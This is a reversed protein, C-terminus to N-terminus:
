FGYRQKFREIKRSAKKRGVPPFLTSVPILESSGFGDIMYIRLAGDHKRVLLNHDLIDRTVVARELLLRFFEDLADRLEETKGEAKVVQRLSRSVSGDDDRILECVIGDGRNTPEIGYCRPFHRCVAEGKAELERFSKLERQNDDFMPLPRLQKYWVAEKKRWVPDGNESLTKVCRDPFDPHVFCFRRGGEAFILNDNLEIMLFVAMRTMEIEFFYLYFICQM